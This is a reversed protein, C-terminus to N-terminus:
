QAEKTKAELLWAKFQALQENNLLRLDSSLDSTQVSGTVNANVDVTQKDRYEPIRKKAYFILLTDSYKTMEGCYKGLQWVPEQYGTVGRRHIEAEINMNAAKDALNFALGFQEDHELWYYVLTRDINVQEAATLINATKEYAKLFDQQAVDRQEATMRQGKRRKKTTSSDFESM